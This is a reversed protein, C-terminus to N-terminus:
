RGLESTGAVEDERAKRRPGHPAGVVEHLQHTRAVPECQERLPEEGEERAPDDGVDGLSNKPAADHARDLDRPLLPPTTEACGIASWVGRQSTSPMSTGM